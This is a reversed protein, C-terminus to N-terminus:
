ILLSFTHATVGGILLVVLRGYSEVALDGKWLEGCLGCCHCCFLTESIPRRTNLRVRTFKRRKGKQDSM